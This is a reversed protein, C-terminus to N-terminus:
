GKTRISGDPAIYRAKHPLARYDDLTKVQKLDADPTGGQSAQAPAGPDAAPPAKQGSTGLKEVLETYGDLPNALERLRKRGEAPTIARDAVMDAIEGRQMDYQAVAQLRGIILANGGPQNIVSPLSRRFGAIDADSLPGSGPERQEPVLKEILATTAQLDSLGESNIGYRGLFGKAVASFGNPSQRLLTDLQNIQALKGKADQGGDSLAAFREANKQDLKEYFKDGEGGTSITTSGAGSKRLAQEYELPGLPERGAARERGAYYEYSQVDAPPKNGQEVRFAFDRSNNADTVANRADERSYGEQRVRDDYERKEAATMQEYRRQDLTESRKIQAQYGIEQRKQNEQVVQQLLQMGMDETAPDGLLQVIQERTVGSTMSPPQAGGTLANGLAQNSVPQGPPAPVTPAETAFGQANVPSPRVQPTPVGGTAQAVGATPDNSAVQVPQQPAAASAVAGGGGQFQPLYSRATAIRAAAEGDPRNWGAFAWARNMHQQAEEVSKSNNLRDILGPDESLFFQAQLQPSPRNPDGGNKAAFDRMAQLRGARWSMIGGAMGAQGSESPDSWQRYANGESYGSERKGTAAVAALGFPNKVKQGVTSIFDSYIDGNGPATSVPASKGGVDASTYRGDGAAGAAGTMAGGFASGSLLSNALAQNAASRKGQIAKEGAEAKRQQYAGIGSQLISGIAELPSDVHSLDNGQERLLEALALRRKVSEPTTDDGAFLAKTIAM